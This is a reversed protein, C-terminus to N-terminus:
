LARACCILCELGNSSYTYREIRHISPFTGRFQATLADERRMFAGRDMRRLAYAIPRRFPSVPLVADFVVIWGGPKVVRRMESLGAAMTADPVHHFMGVSWASDFWGNQFPLADCSGVVGGRSHTQSYTVMYGHTYDLGVPNLGIRRLWSQPGCGVDLVREHSEAGTVGSMQRLKETLNAIAGPALISQSCSYLFSNDLFKM